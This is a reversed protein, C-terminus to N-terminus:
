AGTAPRTPGRRELFARILQKHESTTFLLATAEVAENIGALDRNLFQKGMEVAIPPNAAIRAALALSEDILREPEAVQQVLGIRLAHEANIEQGTLAMWRTWSRGMVEPGRVLGYGPMLGVTVERFAFRAGVSAIALDCALTLETGGGFALGNVAAITVTKVREVASFAGLALRVQRRYAAVDTLRDFDAIDGGASFADGAGTLVCARVAPDDDLAALAAPLEAFFAHNMANRKQPRNITVLATGDDRRDVVLTEM